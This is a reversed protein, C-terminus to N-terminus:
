LGHGIVVPTLKVLSYIAIVQMTSLLVVSILPVVM